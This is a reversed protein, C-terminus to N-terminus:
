LNQCLVRKFRPHSTLGQSQISKTTQFLEQTRDDQWGQTFSVCACIRAAVAERFCGLFRAYVAASIELASIERLGSTVPVNSGDMRDGDSDFNHKSKGNSRSSTIIIASQVWKTKGGSTMLANLDGIRQGETLPTIHYGM